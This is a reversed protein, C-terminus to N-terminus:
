STRAGPSVNTDDGAWFTVPEILVKTYRAWKANPNVCRLSAVPEGAGSIAADSLRGPTESPTLEACVAAGLFACSSRATKESVKVQQTTACGALAAVAVAVIAGRSRLLARNWRAM